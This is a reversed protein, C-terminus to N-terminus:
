PRFHLSFFSEPEPFVGGKIKEAKSNDYRDLHFTKIRKMSVNIQYYTHTWQSLLILLNM